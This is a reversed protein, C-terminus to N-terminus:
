VYKCLKDYYITRGQGYKTHFLRRLNSPAGCDSVTEIISASMSLLGTMSENDVWYHTHTHTHTSMHAFMCLLFDCPVSRTYVPMLFAHALLFHTHTCTHAPSLRFLFCINGTNNYSLDRTNSWSHAESLDQRLEVCM